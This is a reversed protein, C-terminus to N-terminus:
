SYVDCGIAMPPTRLYMQEVDPVAQLFGRADKTRSIFLFYMHSGVIAPCSARNLFPNAMFIRELATADQDLLTHYRKAGCTDDTGTPLRNGVPAHSQQPPTSTCAALALLVILKKM